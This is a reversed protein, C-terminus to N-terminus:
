LRCEFVLRQGNASMIKVQATRATGEPLGSLAPGASADFLCIITWKGTDRNALSQNWDNWSFNTNMRQQRQREAEAAPTATENWSTRYKGDEFGISYIYITATRWATYKSIAAATGGYFDDSIRGAVHAAPAGAQQQGPQSRVQAPQRATSCEAQGSLRRMLAEGFSGAMGQNCQAYAPASLWVLLAGATVPPIAGLRM